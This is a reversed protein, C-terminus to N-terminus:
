DGVEERLGDVACGGECFSRGHAGLRELNARFLGSEGDWM